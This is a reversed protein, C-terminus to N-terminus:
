DTDDTYDPAGHLPANRTPHFSGVGIFHQAIPFRPERRSTTLGGASAPGPHRHAPSGGTAIRRATARLLGLRLRTVILSSASGRPNQRLGYAEPLHETLAGLREEPTVPVARRLCSRTSCPLGRRHRSRRCVRRGLRCDLRRPRALLRVPGYYWHLRHFRSSPLARVRHHSGQM